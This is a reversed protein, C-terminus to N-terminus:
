VLKPAVVLGCAQHDTMEVVQPDCVDEPLADIHDSCAIQARDREVVDDGFGLPL